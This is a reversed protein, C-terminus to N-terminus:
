PGGSHAQARPSARLLPEGQTRRRSRRANELGADREPGRHFASLTIVGEEPKGAAKRVDSSEIGHDAANRILHTLPDGLMELMSKDIETEEGNMELRIGKGTARALDYVTRPYRQFLTGIPLMRIGM